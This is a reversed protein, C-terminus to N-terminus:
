PLYKCHKPLIKIAYWSLLKEILRRDDNSRMFKAYTSIVTILDSRSVTRSWPETKTLHGRFEGRRQIFGCKGLGMKRREAFEWLKENEAVALDFVECKGGEVWEREHEEGWSLL